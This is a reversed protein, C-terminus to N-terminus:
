ERQREKVMIKSSQKLHDLKRTKKKTNANHKLVREPTKDNMRIM